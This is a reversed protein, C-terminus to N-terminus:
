RLLRPVRRAAIRHHLFKEMWNRDLSNSFDRVDADLAWNAKKRKVGVALADLADHQSRGRRFGDSFCDLEYITNLREEVSAAGAAAANNAPKAPMVPGTHSGVEKM